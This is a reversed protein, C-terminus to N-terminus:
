TEVPRFVHAYATFVGMVGVYIVLLYLLYTGAVAVRNSRRAPALALHVSAALVALLAFFLNFM